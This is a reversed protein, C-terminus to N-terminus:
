FPNCILVVAIIGVIMGVWKLPQIKQKFLVMDAATALILGGANVTPFFIASEMANSLYLNMKNNAFVCLGAVVVIVVLSPTFEKKLAGREGHALKAVYWGSMAASYLVSTAFAVTLFGDLEEKYITTQHCKQLVGIIGTLFFAALSYIFWAVSAGKEKGSFDAFFVFSVIMFVIGMIQVVSISEDWIFYGSLAPIVSSLTVLVQTYSMPGKNYANLLVISQGATVLGFVLGLWLTFASVQPVGGLILLGAVAVVSISCNYIHYMVAKNEFRDASFKRLINGVLCACMSICLIIYNM